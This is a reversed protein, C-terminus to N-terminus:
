GFTVKVIGSASTAGLVQMIREHRADSHPRIIVPEDIGFQAVVGSLWQRLGGLSKDGPLAYTKDNISVRGEQDIALVIAPNPSLSTAGPPRIPLEKERDRMGASAMFFLMLVFVVDVMPAIQFGPDGTESQASSAM